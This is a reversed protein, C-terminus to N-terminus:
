MSLLCKSDTEQVDRRNINDRGNINAFGEGSLGLCNAILKIDLNTLGGMGGIV